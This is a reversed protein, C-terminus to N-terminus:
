ESFMDRMMDKKDQKMQKMMADVEEDKMSEEMEKIESYMTPFAIKMMEKSMPKSKPPAKEPPGEIQYDSYNLLRLIMIGPEEGGEELKKFNEVFKAVTPAPLSTLTLLQLQFKHWAEAQKVPDKIKEAKSALKTLEAAISLLGISKTNSGAWPKGTFYDGAMMFAEGLIFLGNINGLAAARLLDEGDDDRYGRLLGPLGQAIYQFLVPAIVHYTFLTRLNETLTGKGANMDRQSIKRYIGRVAQIEKRLYQKPTTLFMNAARVLPNGTQLYDRDQLDASQQTRKTDREFKRIAYDIVEQETAASNEKKYQAKYYNYNPMGGAYIATADGFKTTFMLFDVFFEKARNPIFKQASSESYSEIQRMMSKSYRDKLYVSNDRMEKFTNVVDPLSKASYKAYNVYGIDNAYTIFSGMQKIMVVPSLALRSMIFVNNMGNILKATLDTRVGKNAIKQISDKILTNTINGHIDAIASYITENTFLKNIDRIPEAYAAFYEMDNIYTVLADTGDMEQIAKDNNVRFKTSQSGVSTNYQEQGSLLDLPQEVIGERYIRGAYFQNWPLNTRYIKKYTENYHLYLAPFLENVQWDALTKVEETMQSEVSDMVRKANAKNAIQKRKTEEKSDTKSYQEVGYMNVSEFAPHNAPDKYQNYLYYMKNQSILLENKQIADALNKKNEYSPEDKYAQEAQTVKSENIYIGTPEDKRNLRSQKRWNKGYLEMLKDQLVQGVIMKREKNERSAEDIRETVIEQTRGEFIEGPLQSIKDMLGDLAEATGWVGDSISTNIKNLLSGIRGRVKKAKTERARERAKEDINESEELPEGTIDEYVFERQRIYEEHQTRIEDQLETRGGKLLSELQSFAADLAAVKNIDIDGMTSANNLEIAVQTDMMQQEVEETFNESISLENFLKELINNKESLEEPTANEPLINKKIAKLRENVKISIRTGKRRGSQNVEYKGTLIKKINKELAEINKTTAFDLVEQFLNDINKEDAIAVKNLLDMAEKKSYLQLPLTKRIFNKLERKISAIDRVGKARQNLMFRAVRIKQAMNQSPRIGIAKQFETVMRAQQSSMGVRNDSEAIYEPQKELFEITKDVIEQESLLPAKRNNKANLKKTFRLVENNAQSREADRTDLLRQRFKNVLETVEKKKYEQRKAALLAAASSAQDVAAKRELADRNLKARFESVEDNIQTSTKYTQRQLKREAVIEKKVEAPTLRTNRDNKDTLKQRFREVRTWLKAGEKIGGKINGFSEPMKAFQEADIKMADNVEGVKFGLTRVLYDKITAEPFGGERGDKITNTITKQQRGQYPNVKRGRSNVIYFSGGRGYEDRKAQKLSYGPIQSLEKKLFYADVGNPFFGYINMQYRKAIDEVTKQQRNVTATKPISGASSNVNSKKFTVKQFDEFSGDFSKTGSKVVKKGKNNVKFKRTDKLAKKYKKELSKGELDVVDTKKSVVTEDKNYKTYTDTLEDSQYFKNPQYIGEIKSIVTWGFSPHHDVEGPITKKIELVSPDFRVFTMVDFDASNKNLPDSLKEVFAPSSKVGTAEQLKKNTTIKANLIKRLNPSYNNEINLLEVLELPNAKFQELNTIETGKNEKYANRFTNFSKVGDNSTLTESFMDILEDNSIINNDLVLETLASFIHQQFQWSDKKTGMHPAFLSAKGEIANKIFGEANEKSNFAALNSKDGLKKGTKEMIYPVYNRGGLLDISLGNGLDTIGSNTFDYMNTVFNEDVLDNVNIDTVLRKVWPRPDNEVPTSERGKAQRNVSLTGVDGSLGQVESDLFSLESESIEFGKSVKGSLTNMLNIVDEDTKTFEPGVPINFKRAINKIWQLIINKSATKLTTYESSLIGMLEALSEENQLFAQENQYLNALADIRTLMDSNAPLTKRVSQMMTYALKTAYVDNQKVKDILVAHFVEHGVTTAGAKSLNIHITNNPVDYYGRGEPAYTEFEENTEHLLFKTNPLIRKVAKAANEALKVVRNRKFNKPTSPDVGKTNIVLNPTPTETTTSEQDSFFLEIESSNDTQEKVSSTETATTETATTETATTETATTETATTETATTETATTEVPMNGIIELQKNISDLQEQEKTVLKPDKPGIYNELKNKNYLLGLAAQRQTANYTDPISNMLGSLQLYDETITKSEAETIEGTEVQQKLKADLMVGYNSDKSMAEFTEFVEKPLATFDQGRVATSVSNPISMIFGGVAEQGGARLVQSIYEGVSDPTVFMDKEKISNYIDKVGVEAMEQAAGTEFEALAGGAVVLAGRAVMNKVDQEVFQRFTKASAGKPVKTLVRRLIGNLMGKQSIVNRLGLTELTGVAIAIPAVVLSKENESINDFEPNNSMEEYVHDSVQATMQVTRQAWGVPGAGGIMAPLSEALGIFAGGWFDEQQLKTWNITTEDDGVVERMGKRVAEVIGMSVDTNAAATSFRNRYQKDGYKTQKKYSDFLADNAIDFSTKQLKGDSSGGLREILEEKSLDEINEDEPVLGLEKAKAALELRYPRYPNEPMVGASEAAKQASVLLDMSVNTYGAGIRAFGDLVGNFIGGAWTGERAKMDTYDYVTRDLKAGQKKFSESKNILYLKTKQLQLQATKYEQSEAFVPDNGAAIKLEESKDLYLKVEEDFDKTETNFNKLRQEIDKVDKIKQTKVKYEGELLSLRENEARNNRLFIKLAEAEETETSSMFPDLDVNISEGNKATVKMSDGIGQEQFVFGYDGFNYRLENVVEEEEKDILKNDVITLSQEFFDLSDYVEKEAIEQELKAAAEPRNQQILKEVSPNNVTPSANDQLSDLEASELSGDQMEVAQPLPSEMGGVQAMSDIPNKKEVPVEEAAAIPSAQVGMLTEFDSIPQKYGDAVFLGYAVERGDANQQMLTKFEEISRKYGDAVFLEYAVNIAEENM